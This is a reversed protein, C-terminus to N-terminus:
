KRPRADRARQLQSNLEQLVTMGSVKLWNAVYPDRAVIDRTTTIARIRERRYSTVFKNYRRKSFAPSSVCRKLHAKIIMDLKRVHRPHVGIVCLPHPVLDFPDFPM